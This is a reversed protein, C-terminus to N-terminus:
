SAYVAARQLCTGALSNAFHSISFAEDRLHEKKLLVLFLAKQLACIEV